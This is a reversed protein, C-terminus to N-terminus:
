LPYYCNLNYLCNEYPLDGMEGKGNQGIAEITRKVMQIDKEVQEAADARGVIKVSKIGMDHFRKIACIGCAAKHFAKAFLKNNTYAERKEKGNGNKRFFMDPQERDICSCMSSHKRGHYSMCHSDSFKCGNRMLFVEFEMDPFGKVMTEIDRMQVDRPLIIRKMGLNRYFAIILRNYAGAMTSLTMPIDYQSLVPILSPDGVILGDLGEFGYTELLKDIYKAQGESYIGSNLTMYAKKGKKKICQIVDGVEELKFNARSGFSSMRNIEEFVGYKRTWAADYFGFYLEDAGANCYRDIAPFDSVPVMIEM